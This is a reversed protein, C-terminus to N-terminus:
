TIASERELRVIIGCKHLTLKTKGQPLILLDEITTLALNVRTLPTPILHNLVTTKITEITLLILIETWDAVPVGPLVEEKILVACLNRALSEKLHLLIFFPSKKNRCNRPASKTMGTNKQVKKAIDVRVILHSLGLLEDKYLSNRGVDIIQHELVARDLIRRNTELSIYILENLTNLIVTIETLLCFFLFCFM